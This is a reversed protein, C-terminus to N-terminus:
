PSAVSAPTQGTPVDQQHKEWSGARQLTRVSLQANFVQRQLDFIQCQMHARQQTLWRAAARHACSEVEAKMMGYPINHVFIKRNDVERLGDIRVIAHAGTEDLRVRVTKAGSPAEELLWAFAKPNSIEVLADRPLPLRAPKKKVFRQFAMMRTNNKHTCEIEHACVYPEPDDVELIAYGKSPFHTTTM